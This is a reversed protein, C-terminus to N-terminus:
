TRFHTAIDQVIAQPFDFVTQNEFRLVRFGNQELYRHRALDYENRLPDDHIGGDLEIVLQEVACYFDVIYPGISHQRRFKRGQVQRKNLLTWM